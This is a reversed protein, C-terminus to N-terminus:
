HLNSLADPKQANKALLNNNQAQKKRSEVELHASRLAFAV